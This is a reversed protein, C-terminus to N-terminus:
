EGTLLDGQRADVEAQALLAAVDDVPQLLGTTDVDSRIEDDAPAQRVGPRSVFRISGRAAPSAPGAHPSGPNQVRDVIRDLAGPKGPCRRRSEVGRDDLRCTEHENVGNSAKIFV